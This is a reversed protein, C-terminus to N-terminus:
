LVSILVNVCPNVEYIEFISDKFEVNEHLDAINFIEDVNSFTFDNKRENQLLKDQRCIRYFAPYTILYSNRRAPLTLNAIRSM